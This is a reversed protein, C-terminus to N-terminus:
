KVRRYRYSNHPNKSRPASFIEAWIMGQLAQNPNIGEFQKDSSQTIINKEEVKKESSINTQLQSKNKVALEPTKQEIVVNRNKNPVADNERPKDGMIWPEEGHFQKEFDKMTTELDSLWGKKETKPQHNAPSTEFPRSKPINNKNPQDKKKKMYSSIIGGIIAIVIWEM